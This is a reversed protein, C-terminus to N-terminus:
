KRSQSDYCQETQEIKKEEEKLESYIFILIIYM